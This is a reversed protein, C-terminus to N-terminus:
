DAGNQESPGSAPASSPANNPTSSPFCVHGSWYSEVARVVQQFGELDTPKSIYSNAQLEYARHIDEEIASATLVIVPIGQLEPDAKVISLVTLGHVQPINLDLLIFNPRPAHQFVGERKLFDLADDGNTVVHVRNPIASDHFCEQVLRADGPDDEVLLIEVLRKDM